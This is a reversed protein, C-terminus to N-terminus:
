KLDRNLAEGLEPLGGKSGKEGLEWCVEQNLM